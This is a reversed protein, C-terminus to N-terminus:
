EDRPRYVGTEPDREPKRADDHQARKPPADRNVSRPKGGGANALFRYLLWAGAGVLLLTLVQPM